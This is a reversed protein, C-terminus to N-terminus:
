HLVTSWILSFQSLFVAKPMQFYALTVDGPLVSVPQAKLTVLHHLVQMNEFFALFMKRLSIKKYKNLKEDNFCNEFMIEM